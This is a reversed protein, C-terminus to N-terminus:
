IQSVHAEEMQYIKGRQDNGKALLVLKSCINVDYSLSGSYRTYAMTVSLGENQFAKKIRECFSEVNGALIFVLEDGSFWRARILVDAHRIHVARRVMGNVIEYGHEQNAEHMHDVDLFVVYRADDAYRRLEFDIAKRETVNFSADVALHALQQQLMQNEHLLQTYTKKM